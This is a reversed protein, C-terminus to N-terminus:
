SNRTIYVIECMMVQLSTGRVGQVGGAGQYSHSVPRQKALDQDEEGVHYTIQGAVRVTHLTDGVWRTASSVTIVQQLVLSSGRISCLNPKSQSNRENM